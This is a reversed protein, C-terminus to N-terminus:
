AQGPEEDTQHEPLDDSVAGSGPAAPGRQCSPELVTIQDDDSPILRSEVLMQTMAMAAIRANPHHDVPATGAVSVTGAVSLHPIARWGDLASPPPRPQGGSRRVLEDLERPHRHGLSAAADHVQQSLELPRQVLDHAPKM